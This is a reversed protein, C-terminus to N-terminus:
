LLIVNQKINWQSEPIIDDDYDYITLFSCKTKFTLNDATLLTNCLQLGDKIWYM